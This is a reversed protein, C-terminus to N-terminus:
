NRAGFINSGIRLFTASNEVAQLYDSSMGMSLENFGFDNNLDKIYKFHFVPDDSVPPICMLGLVNLNLKKCYMVLDKVEERKVGSKQIEDGVNVQLFIKVKKKIKIEEESIKKAIKFSDVSHIYDFLKVANKIKNSQLRGIMHLKINQNTIKIPSWKEVAEQVKNEGFHIHGHDILPMIKNITFTKSVAIIKPYNKINLNDLNSKVENEINILNLVIQHM